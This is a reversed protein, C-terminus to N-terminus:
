WQVFDKLDFTMEIDKWVDYTEPRLMKYPQCRLIARMASEALAPGYPSFTGGLLEPAAAVSGDPKFAVRILVRVDQANAAGVPPSWCESIRRKLADLESLSLAAARGTTTGLQPTSSVAEASAVQRRTDRKDLLAAIQKPDFKPQQQVPKSAPAQKAEPKPLKKAEDKKLAEAIEDVKPEKKSDVRKADAQQQPPPQDSPTIIEKKDSVKALTEAPKTDGIKEALQKEKEVKPANKQGKTMQSFQDASIIDVPLSENPPADFPKGGFSVVALLM